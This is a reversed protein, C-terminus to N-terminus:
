GPPSLPGLNHSPSQGEKQGSELAIVELHSESSTPCALPAPASVYSMPVRQVEKGFLCGLQLAGSVGKYGNIMLFPGLATSKFVVFSSFKFIEPFGLYLRSM